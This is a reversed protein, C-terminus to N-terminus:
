KVSIFMDKNSLIQYSMVERNLDLTMEDSEIIRHILYAIDKAQMATVKHICNSLRHIANLKDQQNIITKTEITM